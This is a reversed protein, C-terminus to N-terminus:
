HELICEVEFEQNGGPDFVVLAPNVEAKDAGSNNYDKLLSM